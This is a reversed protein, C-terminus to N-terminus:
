ENQLDIIISFNIVELAYLSVGIANSKPGFHLSLIEENYSQTQM